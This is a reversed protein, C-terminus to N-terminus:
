PWSDSIRKVPCIVAPMAPYNGSAADQFLAQGTEASQAWIEYCSTNTVSVIFPITMVSIDGGTFIQMTCSNPINTDYSKFWVRTTKAAGSNNSIVLSPTFEYVGSNTIWIKTLNNSFGAVTTNSSINIGQSNNFDVSGFTVPYATNASTLVISNTTSFQANPMVVKTKSAIWWAKGDHYCAVSGVGVMNFSLSEGDRFPAKDLNTVTLSGWRNTSTIRYIVYATTNTSPLIFLGNTAATMWLHHKTDMQVPNHTNTWYPQVILGNTATITGSIFTNSPVYLMGNTNAMLTATETSDMLRWVNTAGSKMRVGSVWVIAYGGGAAVNGNCNFYTVNMTNATMTDAKITGSASSDGTITLANTPVNGIGVFGNTRLYLQNATGMSLITGAGANTLYFQGVGAVSPNYGSNTITLASNTIFVVAVSNSAMITGMQISVQSGNNNTNHWGSGDTYTFNTGGVSGVLVHNTIFQPLRADPVTGSALESANLGVLNSGGGVFNTSVMEFGNTIASQAQVAAIGMIQPIIPGTLNTAYITDARFSSIYMGTGGLFSGNGWLSWNYINNTPGSFTNPGSWTNTGALLTNTVGYDMSAGGFRADMGTLAADSFINTGAWKNTGALSNAAVALADPETNTTFRNRQYPPMQALLLVPLFLLFAILRNM